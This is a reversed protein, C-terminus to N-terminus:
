TQRCAKGGPHHERGQGYGPGLKARELAQYLKGAEELLERESLTHKRIKQGAKQVTEQLCPDRDMLLRRAEDEIWQLLGALGDQRKEGRQYLRAMAKEYEMPSRPEEGPLPRPTGFRRGKSAWLILLVVVGQLFPVLAPLGLLHGLVTTARGYGHHYEDVMLVGEGLHSLLLDLALLAHDEAGLSQNSFLHPDAMAIIRGEGEKIAGLVNGWSDRLHFVAEPLSSTLGPHGKSEIRIGGRVYPGPQLWAKEKKGELGRSWSSEVEFGFHKMYANPVSALLVLVGGSKVWGELDNMEGPAPGIEPEIVLLVGGQPLNKLPKEWREIQIGLDKLWLYLVKYGQAGASHTTPRGPHKEGAQGAKLLVLVYGALFVLAFLFLV